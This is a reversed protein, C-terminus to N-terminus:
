EAKANKTKAIITNMMRKTTIQYDTRFGASGHLRNTLETRTYAPLYGEGGVFTMNMDKLTRILEHVSFLEDKGKALNVRKLLYKIIFLALFCTLFHATIREDRRLFVPRSKFDTKTIRFGDEIQWRFSNFKLIDTARDELDTSVAYFGDFRSEQDIMDQDISYSTITAMEGDNTCSTQKIFRSPSNQSKKEVSSAGKEIKAEAREIQKERLGSLYNRYKISYTVILRQALEQTVGDIKVKDKVWTEKYFTRDYYENEDLKSIDYLKGNDVSNGYKDWCQMKWEDKKLAWDQHEKKLRKLSQVTIYAREGVDNHLRNEYSSLGADTCVVMKSIGFKEHLTAELPKLTVQENTNGPNICFALPMGDMDMFMGMQVIPNPRNEKSRGYQRLGGEVESEFFYNTCDYYIVGTNRKMVKLSNKFLGAQLTESESALLSLGRYIQHLEVSPQEVFNKADELSSQKSGPYLIRTYVLLKLIENLDFEAKHKKSIKDCIKDLGLKHYLNQLFLYGINFSNKEENKILKNTSLEFRVKERSEREQKGLEVAYARAAGEPDEPGFKEILDDLSGLKEVIKSSYKGELTRFSKAVYYTCSNKSRTVQLRM